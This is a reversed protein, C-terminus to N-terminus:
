WLGPILRYRVRSAYDTYEPLENKLMRDELATRVILVLSAVAAPVLAWLSGLALAFGLFLLFATAYMPHCVLRYPGTDVVTHGREVQIRVSPEAFKNVAEVWVSGLMGLTMLVFRAQVGGTPAVDGLSDPLDAFKTGGLVPSSQGLNQVRVLEAAEVQDHIPGLINLMGQHQPEQEVRGDSDGFEAVDLHGINVQVGALDPHVLSLAALIAVHQEALAEGCRDPRVDGGVGAVTPEELRFPGRPKGGAPHLLDDLLIGLLCAGLRCRVGESMLRDGPQGSVRTQGIGLKLEDRAVGSPFRQRDALVYGQIAVQLLLVLVTHLRDLKSLPVGAIHIAASSFDGGKSIPTPARCRRPQQLLKM